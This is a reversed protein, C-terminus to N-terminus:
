HKFKHFYSLNFHFSCFFSCVMWVFSCFTHSPFGLIPSFGVLLHPEHKERKKETIFHLYLSPANVRSNGHISHCSHNSCFRRGGKNHKLM